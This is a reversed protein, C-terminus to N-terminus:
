NIIMMTPLMATLLTSFEYSLFLIYPSLLSIPYQSSSWLQPISKLKQLGLAWGYLTVEELVYHWERTVLCECM